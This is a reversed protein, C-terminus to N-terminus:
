KRKGVSKKLELVINRQNIATAIALIKQPRKQKVTLRKKILLRYDIASLRNIVNNILLNQGM